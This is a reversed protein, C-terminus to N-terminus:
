WYRTSREEDGCTTARAQRATACTAIREASTAWALALMREAEDADADLTTGCLACVLVTMPTSLEVGLYLFSPRREKWPVGLPDLAAHLSPTSSARDGHRGRRLQDATLLLFLTEDLIGDLDSTTSSCVSGPTATACATARSRRARGAPAARTTACRSGGPWARGSTRPSRCSTYRGDDLPRSPQDHLLLHLRRGRHAGFRPTVLNVGTSGAAPASRPSSTPAVRWEAGRRPRVAEGSSLRPACSRSLTAPRHLGDTMENVTATRVGAPATAVAEFLTTVGDRLSGRRRWTAADDHM